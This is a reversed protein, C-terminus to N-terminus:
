RGLKRRLSEPMDLRLKERDSPSLTLIFTQENIADKLESIQKNINGSREKGAADHVWAQYGLIACLLVAVLVMVVQAGSAKVSGFSTKVELEDEVARRENQVPETM